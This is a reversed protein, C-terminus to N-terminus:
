KINGRVLLLTIVVCAHKSAITMVVWKPIHSTKWWWKTDMDVFLTVVFILWALVKSFYFVEYRGYICIGTAIFLAIFLYTTFIGGPLHSSHAKMEVTSNWIIAAYIFSYVGLLQIGTQLLRKNREVGREFNALGGAVLLYCGVIAGNRSIQKVQNYLCLYINTCIFIISKLVM